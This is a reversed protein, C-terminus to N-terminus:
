TKINAAMEVARGAALGAVVWEAELGLTAVLLVM